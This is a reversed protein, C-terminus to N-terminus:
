GLGQAKPYILEFVLGFTNSIYPGIPKVFDVWFSWDFGKNIKKTPSLLSGKNISSYVWIWAVLILSHSDCTVSQCFYPRFIM